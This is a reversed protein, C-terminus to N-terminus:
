KKKKGESEDLADKIYKLLLWAIVFPIYKNVMDFAIDKWNGGFKDRLNKITWAFDPKRKRFLPISRGFMKIEM